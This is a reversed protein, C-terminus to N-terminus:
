NVQMSRPQRLAMKIRLHESERCRDGRGKFNKNFHEECNQLLNNYFKQRDGLPQLPMASYVPPTAINPDVNHPLWPYNETVNVHHMPYSVDVGYGIIDDSNVDGKIQLEHTKFTTYAIENEVSRVDKLFGLALCLTLVLKLLCSTM